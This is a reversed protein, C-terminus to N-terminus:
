GTYEEVTYYDYECKDTVMYPHLKLCKNLAEKENQATIIDGCIIGGEYNRMRCIYTKM